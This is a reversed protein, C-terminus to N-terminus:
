SRAYLSRFSLELHPEDDPEVTRLDLLVRDKEIRAIVPPDCRRLRKECAVPDSPRLAILWTPLSQAPTSGGGIVSEGAIVEAAVGCRRCLRTEGVCDLEGDAHM